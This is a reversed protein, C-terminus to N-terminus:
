LRTINSRYPSPSKAHETQEETVEQPEAEDKTHTKEKTMNEDIQTGFNWKGLCPMGSTTHYKSTQIRYSSTQGYQSTLYANNQCTLVHENETYIKYRLDQVSKESRIVLTQCYKKGIYQGAM